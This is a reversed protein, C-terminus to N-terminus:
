LPHRIHTGTRFLDLFTGIAAAMVTTTDGQAVVCDPSEEAIVRDVATICGSTLQSLTQGPRMLGLDIEPEIGFYGLVQALMERHQGSSCVLPSIEDRKQCELIIPALKVAEPRTGLVILPRLTTSHPM